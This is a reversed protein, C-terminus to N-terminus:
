KYKCSLGFAAIIIITSINIVIKIIIVSVFIDLIIFHLM